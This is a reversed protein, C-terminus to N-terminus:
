AGNAERWQSHHFRPLSAMVPCFPARWWFVNQKPDKKAQSLGEGQMVALVKGQLKEQRCGENAAVGVQRWMWKILSCNDSVRYLGVTRDQKIPGCGGWQEEVLPSTLPQEHGIIIIDALVSWSVSKDKLWVRLFRFSPCVHLSHKIIILKFSEVCHM